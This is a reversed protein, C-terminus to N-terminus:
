FNTLFQREQVIAIKIVKTGMDTGDAAILGDLYAIYIGSAVPLRNKNLLDWDLFPSDITPDDKVLTRVHVGAVNFIRITAKEPMHTFRVFRDFTNTELSNIGIYPNPFVNILSIDDTAQEKTATPAPSTFTFVDSTSNVRNPEMTFVGDDALFARSGRPGTWLVFYTPATASADAMLDTGGQSPDYLTGGADYDTALIFMYEFPAGPGLDDHNFSYDWQGVGFPPIGIDDRASYDRIMVNIQRPPDDTVDWVEFPLDFFGEYQGAAFTYYFFGKQNPKSTDVTYPDGLTYPDENIGGWRLEVSHFDAPSVSSGIFNPGLYLGGFFQEGDSGSAGSHWREGIGSGATYGFSKAELAPGAVKIQFGDLIPYEGDGSQNSNSDVMVTTGKMMNWSFDDNFSITYTDGTLAAPDLIIPFTTGDSVGSHDVTITDGVAGAFRLGADPGSPTVTVIILSSELAHVAVEDSPNSSYATVAFHYPHGMILPNNTIVDEDVILLREIASNTGFQSPLSLIQGSAQDFQPDVITTIENVVDFTALKKAESFVASATPLQWVNYGEFTYGQDSFSETIAVDDLNGGWNIVIKVKELRTDEPNPVVGALAVKPSPPPKPLSFLADFAAQASVDYFRLVSIASINDAGFAALVAVTVEQTDGLAMTFPGTTMLMRRDAPGTDLDGTKTVPDGCFVFLGCADFSPFNLGTAPALGFHLNRWQTTGEYTGLPPDSFDTGAAFYAMSSAGLNRSGAKKKLDFIATDVATDVTPNYDGDGDEDIYTGGADLCDAPDTGADCPVTVLPGAFFDYGAAPPPLGADRFANDVATSNYVYMMSTAPDTGVYDDGFSGLDPDSWQSIYMSDITAGDPTDETGKYIMKFRKFIVFGLPDTRAYAWMTAQMELGISPSGLFARVAGDTLDNAVFWVVQDADAIGPEDAEPFLVPSGDSAFEPTYLGDGNSDYFPAGKHGPWEEWDTEYQNRIAEEDASSIASVAVDLFDAADQKLNATLFDRRVRWIRVDDDEPNEAVGKLLPDRNPDNPDYLIKGPVTGISYTQGGARLVPLQGDQVLGSWVLGDAFIVGSPNGRPFLLGSGGTSPNRASWGDARTWMALNNVNVLTSIPTGTTKRLPGSSRGVNERAISLSVSSLIFAAVLTINLINKLNKM